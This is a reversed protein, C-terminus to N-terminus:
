KNRRRSEIMQRSARTKSIRKQLKRQRDEKIGNMMKYEFSKYEKERQQHIYWFGLSWVLIIIIAGIMQMVGRRGTRIWIEQLM